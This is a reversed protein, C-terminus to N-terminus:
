SYFSKIKLYSAILFKEAEERTGNNDLIQWAVQDLMYTTYKPLSHTMIEVIDKISTDSNPSSIKMEEWEKYFNITFLPKKSQKTKKESM